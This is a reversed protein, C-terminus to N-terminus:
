LEHNEIKICLMTELIGLIHKQMSIIDSLREEINSSNYYYQYYNITNYNGIVNYNGNLYNSYLTRKHEM